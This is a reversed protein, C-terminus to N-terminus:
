LYLMKGQEKLKEIIKKVEGVNKRDAVLIADETEVIITDRLGVTAVLRKESHIFCDKSGEDINNGKVIMSSDLSDKLFDYLSGWNGVDSWQLRSPIVLRNEKGLKEVIIPEVPENELKRFEEELKNNKSEQKSTVTKYIKPALKKTWDLFSKASFIFYGANWLYEWGSLYKEATKKDPKEIFSDVFFIRRDKYNAFEKGMKIYGLGTDSFTPNIGVVVLKEKNKEATELALSIVTTFEDPNKIAHDSAITAIVAKSNICYINQAVLAIAPGTGRPMPEIILQSEKVEPLQELVLSKYQATTSVFINQKPAVQVARDFTEQIMTRSSLFKQFQKPREKRSLPWLRTGTGGAMIVVYFNKNSLM